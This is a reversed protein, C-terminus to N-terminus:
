KDNEWSICELYLDLFFKLFKYLIQLFYFIFIFSGNVFIELIVIKLISEVFQRM